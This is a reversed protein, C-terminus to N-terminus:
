GALYENVAEVFYYDGFIISSDNLSPTSPVNLAGQLLVGDGASTPNNLYTTSMLSQLIQGAAARYKASNTPDTVAIQKSLQLLGSAAIAAASTDKYTNPINPADFDWYPVDDSPLNSIFWNATKEATALFDSRGTAAYAQTFGYIAWAQGRSWTSTNSYGEYTENDVFQGTASNFYSFQATSGDARVNYTEETVANAVAENYYTQNGTQQAAWFLIPSDMILDLLVNFNAAPNGSTSSRWGEFAGVTSNFSTAKSATANLMIQIIGANGPEQQLLPDFPDWIRPGVDNTVNQNISLPTTFAAAETKYFSNGTATYLQWLLGPWFGTTWQTDSVWSWTGDPNVYQPYNSTTGIAAITKLSQEQAVDLANHLQYIMSSAYTPQADFAFDMLTYDSGDVAGDYNFDGNSWGTLQNAFGNDIRTYDSGDVQGDLNTDGAFTFKVLVDTVVAPQDDFTSYLATGTGDDNTIVGLATVHTSDAPALSSTMGSTGEWLEGNINYGQRISQWIAPLNGNHVIMDNGTLDLLGTSAISLSNLVLVARDSSSEPTDVMATGGPLINLASLHIASIGTGAAAATFFLSGSDNVTLNSTQTVPDGALTFTGADINLTDSGAGGDFFLPAAPQATQTLTNNGSGGDITISQAESYSIATSAFTVTLANVQVPTGNIGTVVLSNSSGNGGTFAVTSPFPDGNSFDLTLSDDVGGGNVTVTTIQSILDSQTPTGVGPTSSNQWVDLHLHDADEMLYFINNGSGGTLTLAGSLLHRPELQEGVVRM